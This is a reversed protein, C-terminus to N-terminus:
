LADDPLMEKKVEQWLELIYPPADIYNEECIGRQLCEMATKGYIDYTPQDEIHMDEFLKTGRIDERAIRDHRLAQALADKLYRKATAPDDLFCYMEAISKLLLCDYKEFYTHTDQPEIGHLANRLWAICDLAGQYDKRQFFVNAYGIMISNIDDMFVRFARGLYKEAEDADQLIDGIVMGIFANNVGCVNYKKLIRLAEEINSLWLHVQAMKRRISIESISEDTNQSLLECAHEFLELARCAAADEWLASTKDYYVLASQYVIDFNNPYKKLAKEAEASAEQYNKEKSLTMIRKLATSVNSNRWEYGLLVDTSLDFLDAMELILSIDPISQKSEWKYVAGVTVGLAEALQEQTMKKSKRLAKINEALKINM